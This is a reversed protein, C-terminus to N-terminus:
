GEKAKAAKLKKRIDTKTEMGNGSYIIHNHDMFLFSPFMFIDYKNILEVTEALEADYIKLTYRHLRCVEELITCMVLCM